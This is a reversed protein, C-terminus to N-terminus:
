RELSLCRTSQSVLLFVAVCVWTSIAAAALLQQQYLLYLWLSVGLLPCTPEAWSLTGKQCALVLYQDSADM